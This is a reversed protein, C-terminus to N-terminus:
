NRKGVDAAWVVSKLTENRKTKVKAPRLRRGSGVWGLNRNVQRVIARFLDRERERDRPGLFSSHGPDPDRESEGSARMRWAVVRAAM